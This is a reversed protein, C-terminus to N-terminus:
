SSDKGIVCVCVIYLLLRLRANHQIVQKHLDGYIFCSSETANLTRSKADKMHFSVGGCKTGGRVLRDWDQLAKIQCHEGSTALQVLASRGSDCWVGAARSVPQM